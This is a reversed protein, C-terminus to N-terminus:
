ACQPEVQANVRRWVTKGGQLKVVDLKGGVRLKAVARRTQDLSFGEDMLTTRLTESDNDGDQILASLREACDPQGKKVVLADNATATGIGIWTVVPQGNQEIIRFDMSGKITKGVNQKIRCLHHVGDDTKHVSYVFRPMGVLAKVGGIKDGVSGVNDASRKNTHVVQLLTINRQSILVRV